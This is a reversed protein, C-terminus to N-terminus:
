RDRFSRHPFDAPIHRAFGLLNFIPLLSIEQCSFGHIPSRRICKPLMSLAANEGCRTLIIGLINTM